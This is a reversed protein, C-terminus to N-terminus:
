ILRKQAARQRARPARAFDSTGRQSPMDIRKGHVIEGATIIQIRPYTSGDWPSHYVGAAAADREMERTPPQTVVLIGIPANEREMTGRLDRVHSPGTNGGKVSIIVQEYRRTEPQDAGDQEPFTSVGDIGRDMGKRNEGGRATGDLKAVAWFQFQYKDREALALAAAEDAPDGDVPVSNAGGPFDAPFTDALRRRMLDVALYTVDIGVWRRGLRHAAVTATGCGCFPDLVVDGENSSAAIIRELLAEPKQTPYGLCEHAQSNVPPIDDWLSPLAAGPMEDLYRKLYPVGSKSWQLRGDADIQELKQRIVRWGWEPRYGKYEYALNPRPGMSASRIVNDLRFRRGSEDQRSYHSDVYKENHAAYQPNWLASSSKTYYLICDHIDAYHRADSHSSTRKWIIENRFNQPGFVADMLVKLYHSATPDCHLYISAAPKMVRRLEVLRPAMMTLYATVDNHGLAQVFAQLLRGVDDGKSVVEDYTEAAHTGCKWTDGFAEIQAESETGKAEKFLVNCSRSSNFPPDLYVLDVCADPFDCLVGLNDGYYLTNPAFQAIRALTGTGERRHGIAGAGRGAGAM